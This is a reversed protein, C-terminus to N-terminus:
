VKKTSDSVGRLVRFLNKAVGKEVVAEPAQVANRIDVETLIGDLFSLDIYMEGDAALAQYASALVRSMRRYSYPNNSHKEVAAGPLFFVFSLPGHEALEQSLLAQARHGLINGRVMTHGFQREHKRISHVQERGDEREKATPLAVSITTTAGISTADSEGTIDLITVTAGADRKEAIKKLVRDKTGPMKEARDLAKLCVIMHRRFLPWSRQLLIRNGAELRLHDRVVNVSHRGEHLLRRFSDNSGFPRKEKESM